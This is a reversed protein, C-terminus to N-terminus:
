PVPPATKEGHDVSDAQYKPLVLNRPLLQYIPEDSELDDMKWLQSHKFKLLPELVDSFLHPLKMELVYAIRCLLETFELLRLSDTGEPRYSFPPYTNKLEIAMSRQARCYSVLGSFTLKDFSRSLCLELSPTVPIEAEAEEAKQKKAAKPPARFQDFDELFQVMSPKNPNSISYNAYDYIQHLRLILDENNHLLQHVKLRKTSMYVKRFLIFKLLKSPLEKMRHIFSDM